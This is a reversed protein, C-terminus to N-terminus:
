LPSLVPNYCKNTVTCRELDMGSEASHHYDTPGFSFLNIIFDRNASMFRVNIVIIALFCINYKLCIGQLLIDKSSFQHCFLHLFAYMPQYNIIQGQM